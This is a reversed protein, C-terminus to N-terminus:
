DNMIVLDLLIPEQGQRFMTPRGVLQSFYADGLADIFQEDDGSDTCLISWDIKPFNLDGVICIFYASIKVVLCNWWCYIATHVEM